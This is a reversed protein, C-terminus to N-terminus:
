AQLRALNEKKQVGIEQIKKEGPHDASADSCLLGVADARCRRCHYMQPVHLSALDRLRNMEADTPPDLREFPTDPVPILPICNMLDAGLTAAEAAIMGVHESNIGPLVVTNIKVIFGRKKARRVAERQRSLLFEAAQIGRMLTHDRQVWAYIRQGIVPDVANITVTVHTVGVEALDDVYDALNLGNTSLCLLLEPHRSRVIRLTELTREPECLPDGPGAIGIVSIDGRKGLVRKLYSLVDAPELIGQTVGPRSENACDYLRNCFNCQINCQPAVPLHIRGWRAKASGYFCPHDSVARKECVGAQIM